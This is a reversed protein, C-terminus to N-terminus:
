LGTTLFAPAQEDSKVPVPLYSASGAELIAPLHTYLYTAGQTRYYAWREAPGASGAARGHRAITAFAVEMASTVAPHTTQGPAGLSQSLDSPGLFVVDIGPVALIDPLNELAEKTEVQICVLTEANARRAYDDLETGIGYRAPRTRAALGRHGQPHYKVADVVARAQAATSVHPVQVGAVGRELAEQIAHPANTRPRAVATIGVAEAAIVMLEMSELSMTGHECDLLVWDFGLLGIMEVLQPSPIMISVGRVPEGRALAAKMRTATM